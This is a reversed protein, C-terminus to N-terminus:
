NTQYNIIKTLYKKTPICIYACGGVGRGVGEKHPDLSKEKHCVTCIYLPRGEEKPLFHFEVREYKESM